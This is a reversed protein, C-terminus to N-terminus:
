KKENKRLFKTTKIRRFIKTGDFNLDDNENLWLVGYVNSMHTKDLVKIWKDVEDVYDSVIIVADNNRPHYTDAIYQFGEAMSTGGGLRIYEPIEKINWDGNLRTNWTIFRCRSNLSNAINKFMGVFMSLLARDISNSVDALIYLCPREFNIEKTTKPILLNTGFKRRNYYYLMNRRTQTQDRMLMDTLMKELQKSNSAVGAVREDASGDESRGDSDVQRLRNMEEEAKEIEESQDLLEIEQKLKELEKKSFKLNQNGNKKKEATEKGNEMNKKSLDSKGSGSSSEQQQGIREAGDQGDSDGDSKQGEGNKGQQNMQDKIQTLFKEPDALILTLYASADLGNPFGYAPAWCCMACGETGSFLRAKRSEFFNYEDESFLKGNVEMDLVINYLIRQFYQYFDDANTFFNQVKDYAAKVKVKNIANKNTTNKAHGFIVHGIEHAEMFATLEPDTDNVFIKYIEGCLGDRTFVFSTQQRNEHSYRTEHVLMNIKKQIEEWCAPFKTMNAM